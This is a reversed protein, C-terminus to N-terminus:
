KLSNKINKRWEFHSMFSLNDIKRDSININQWFEERLVWQTWILIDGLLKSMKSDIFQSKPIFFTIKQFFRLSEHFSLYSFLHPKPTKNWPKFYKILKLSSMGFFEFFRNKAVFKTLLRHLPIQYIKDNEQM